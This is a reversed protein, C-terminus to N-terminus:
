VETAGWLPRRRRPLALCATTEDPASSATYFLLMSLAISYFCRSHYDRRNRKFCLGGSSAKCFRCLAWASICATTEDTVSSATYFCRSLEPVSALIFSDLLMSFAWASISTHRLGEFCYDRRNRKFSYYLLMSLAWASISTHRWGQYEYYHTKCISLLISPRLFVWYDRLLIPTLSCRCSAPAQLRMCGAPAQLRM